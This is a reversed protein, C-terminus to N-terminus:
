RRKVNKAVLVSLRKAFCKDIKLAIHFQRIDILGMAFAMDRDFMQFWVCCGTHRPMRLWM